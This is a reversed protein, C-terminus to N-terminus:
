CIGVGIRDIHSKLEQNDIQHYIVVDTKYPLMLDELRCKIELLRKVTVNDGYLCVDIDSGTKYSGLARSGFIVVKEIETFASFVECLKNIDQKSLGLVEHPSDAMIAGM